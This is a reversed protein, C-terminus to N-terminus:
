RTQDWLEKEVIYVFVKKLQNSAQLTESAEEWEQPMPEAIGGVSPSFIFIFLDGVHTTVTHNSKEKVQHTQCSRCFPKFLSLLLSIGQRIVSSPWMGASATFTSSMINNSSVMSSFVAVSSSVTSSKM